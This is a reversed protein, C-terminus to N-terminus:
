RLSSASDSGAFNHVSGVAATWTAGFCVFPAPVGVDVAIAEALAAASDTGRRLLRHYRQMADNAVEDHVRAVGSVVSRTGLRLLVSTWGLPEDGPRITAQGLECASLVVHEATPVMQDFEYAFVPGDALRLWSFLPNEPQHRGHAAIHVVRAEIMAARLERQGAQGDRFMASGPWLRAIASAEDTAFQLDPGAFVAVNSGLVDALGSTPPSASATSWATASPAVVIPRGRLSPLLGWPLTALTGTPSLVLREDGLALPAVLVEDLSALSRRLAGTAVASLPGSLRGNALVDLDARVRRGLENVVGAPALAVVRPRGAGLVLAHLQGASELYSTFVSGCSSLAELMVALTVPKRATGSGERQWARSRLIRQIEGTRRRLALVRKAATPDSEIARLEGSITRLEALSDAVLPDEPAVVPQLRSSIARGQEVAALVASASGSDLALELDLETLRLGHVAGATQLDLSGFRSRHRSLEALGARIERRAEASTGTALALKARVFRTQLRASIADGPQLAGAVAAVERAKRAHGARLLAEVAILQATHARGALGEARFEDALRLAVPALRLGPRNAALDAQLLVLEADRRWRDNARRRFRNRANGALRRAAAVEGCVLACEARALEVEAVDKWLRDVRFLKEAAVLSEDAERHLGAEFLVRSQDLLVVARSFEVDVALVENMTRLAVALNGALYELYGLNHRAKVEEIPLVFREALEAARTLDTRARALDGRFLHATGRNLLIAHGSGPAAHDLLDVARDLHKLGDEVHGGRVKMYGMQNQLVVDLSPDGLEDVYQQAQALTQLGRSLGSLESDSTALSIWIRARLTREERGSSSDLGPSRSEIRALARRLTRAAQMPHGALNRQVGLEHLRRAESLGDSAVM